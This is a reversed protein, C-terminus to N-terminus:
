CNYMPIFPNQIYGGNLDPVWNDAYPGRVARAARSVLTPNGQSLDFQPNGGGAPAQQYGIPM